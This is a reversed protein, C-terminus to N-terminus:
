EFISITKTAPPTQCSMCLAGEVEVPSLHCTACVPTKLSDEVYESEVEPVVAMEAVLTAEEAEQLDDEPESTQVTETPASLMEPLPAPMAQAVKPALSHATKILTTVFEKVPTGSNYLTHSLWEQEDATLGLFVQEMFSRRTDTPAVGMEKLRLTITAAHCGLLDAIAKLGLGVHNLRKIDANQVRDKARVNAM